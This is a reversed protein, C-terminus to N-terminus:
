PVREDADVEIIWDSHCADLGVNRRLGELEWAGEIVRAGRARAIAASGDTSRDLVVVVEDAFAVSDLCAGLQAEENRAIVVAALSPSKVGSGDSMAVFEAISAGLDLRGGGGSHGYVEAMSRAATVSSSLYVRVEPRM